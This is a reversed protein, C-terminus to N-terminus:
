PRPEVAFAGGAARVTFLDDFGEDRSPPELRAAAVHVAVDPVRARGERRRNRALCEGRATDLLYGAVRAGHRRAAAILPARDASRPNTNDVVVSHGARLAAEILGIQRAGKDRAGPLLDKSVHQHTGAFRSRYFSTKGSGPLGVLIAVEM